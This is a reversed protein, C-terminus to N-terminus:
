YGLCVRCAGGTVGKVIVPPNRPLDQNRGWTARGRGSVPFGSLGPSKARGEGDCTGTGSGIPTAANLWWCLPFGGRWIVGWREREPLLGWREAM